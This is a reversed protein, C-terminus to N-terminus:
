GGVPGHASEYAETLVRKLDEDPLPALAAAAADIFADGELALLDDANTVLSPDAEIARRALRGFGRLPEALGQRVLFRSQLTTVTSDPTGEPQSAKIGNMVGQTYDMAIYHSMQTMEPTLLGQESLYGILGGPQNLAIAIDSLPSRTSEDMIDFGPIVTTVADICQRPHAQAVLEMEREREVLLAEVFDWVDETLLPNSRIAALEYHEQPGQISGDSGMTWIPAFEVTSPDFSSKAPQTQQAAPAPRQPRQSPPVYEPLPPRAPPPPLVAQASASQASGSALALALLATRVSHM